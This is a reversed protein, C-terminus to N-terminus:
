GAEEPQTQGSVNGTLGNRIAKTPCVSLCKGCHTCKEPDIVALPGDMTIAGYECAKFCRQCGICGVKCHKHTQIGPWKNRCRVTYANSHKPIIRILEKPCTKVCMGCATCKGSDIVAIGDVIRIAGFQCVAICDGFGLCGYACSNPGTFLGAAAICTPTGAYEYRKNTNETTGQCFVQATNPIFDPTALGLLEALEKATDPGGVPCRGANPEGQALADAYAECGSFGCAGCNAGPLLAKIAELKEDVPVAFFKATIMIVVGLVLAIGGGIAVPIMIDSLVSLLALAIASM